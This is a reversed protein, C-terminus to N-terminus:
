ELLTMSVAPTSARAALTSAVDLELLKSPNLPETCSSWFGLSFLCCQQQLLQKQQFWCLLWQQLRAPGLVVVVQKTSALSFVIGAEIGMLRRPTDSWAASAVVSVAGLLGEAPRRASAAHAVVCM